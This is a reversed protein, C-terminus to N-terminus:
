NKAAFTSEEHEEEIVEDPVLKQPAWASNNLKRAREELLSFAFHNLMIGRPMAVGQFRYLRDTEESEIKHVASVTARGIIGTHGVMPGKSMDIHDGVRYLTVKDDNSRAISPIQKSKFPNDQFMDLALEETIELREVPLEANALKVFVASM